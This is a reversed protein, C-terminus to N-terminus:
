LYAISSRAASLRFRWTKNSMSVDRQVDAADIMTTECFVIDQRFQRDAGVTSSPNVGPLNSDHPSHDDLGHQQKHHGSAQESLCRLADSPTKHPRYAEPSLASCM